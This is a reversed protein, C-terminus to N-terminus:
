NGSWSTLGSQCKCAYSCSSANYITELSNIHNMIIIIVIRSEKKIKM